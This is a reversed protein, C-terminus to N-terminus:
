RLPSRLPPEGRSRRVEYLARGVPSLQATFSRERERAIVLLAAVWKAALEPQLAFFERNKSYRHRALERKLFLEVSDCDYVRESFIVRFDAPVATNKSLQYARSASAPRSKGIKVLGPMAPNALVYINGFASVM